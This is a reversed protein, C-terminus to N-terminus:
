VGNMARVAAAPDGVGVFDVLMVTPKNGWQRNCVDAQGGVSGAGAAANTKPANQRDPVLVNLNGVNVVQKDLFHNVIYMSQKGDGQAKNARDMPCTSFSADTSDFPTEFFNNFEDLIFPVKSEDAGYDLYLVVRKKTDIMEGLSPWDGKALPRPSSKPVFLYGDLGVSKIVDAFKGVDVRDGNTLLVSVVERPNADVWSRVAKLYDAVAGGDELLCSTHCMRLANNWWHTQSTLFRAGANLQDGVSLIQNQAPLPGIFASDHAGLYTVSSYSRSCLSPSGNCSSPTSAPTSVTPPFLTPLLAPLFSPLKM